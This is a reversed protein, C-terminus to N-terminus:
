ARPSAGQSGNRDLKTEIRVLREKLDEHRETQQKEREVFTDDHGNVRGELRVLWVVGGVAALCLTILAEVM